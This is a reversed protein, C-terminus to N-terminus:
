DRGELRQNLVALLRKAEPVYRDRPAQRGLGQGCIQPLIWASWVNLGVGGM